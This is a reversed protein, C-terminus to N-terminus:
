SELIHPKIEDPIEIEFQLPEVKERLDYRRVWQLLEQPQPVDYAYSPDYKYGPSYNRRFFILGLGVHVGVKFGITERIALAAPCEASNGHEGENIHRQTINIIM